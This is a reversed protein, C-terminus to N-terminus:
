GQKRLRDHNAQDQKEYADIAKKLQNAYGQAYAQQQRLSALYANAHSRAAEIQLKSGPDGAPPQLAPLKRAKQIMGNLKDAIAEWDPLLSRMADIDMKFGGGAVAANASIDQMANQAAYVAALPSPAVTTAIQEANRQAQQEPTLYGAHAYVPANGGASPPGSTVVPGSTPLPMPPAGPPPAAPQDTSTIQQNVRDLGSQGDPM